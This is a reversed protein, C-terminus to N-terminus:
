EYHIVAPDYLRVVTSITSAREAGPPMWCSRIYFDYFTTESQANKNNESGDGKIIQSKGSYAVIYLGEVRKIENEEDVESTQSELDESDSYLIRPYTAPEFFVWNKKDLGNSPRIVVKEAGDQEVNGLQRINLIFPNKGTRDNDLTGDKNNSYLESCMNPRYEKINKGGDGEEEADAIIANWLEGYANYVPTKTEGQSGSIYSDHIFRLAEAQADIEERTITTELASQAKSTSASTVSVVTIAVM